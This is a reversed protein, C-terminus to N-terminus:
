ALGGAERSELKGTCRQYTFLKPHTILYTTLSAQTETYKLNKPYRSGPPQTVLVSEEVIYKEVRSIAEM